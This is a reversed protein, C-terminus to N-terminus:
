LLRGVRLQVFDQGPNPERIGGNSYHEFRLTWEWSGGAPRFGVGIHESFNFVTSFDEFGHRFVPTIANFGLAAEVFWRPWRANTYRLMPAIGFQTSVAEGERSGHTKWHGLALEVYGSLLGGALPLPREPWRWRLGAALADAGRGGGAQVFVQEPVFPSRSPERQAASAVDDAPLPLKDALQATVSPAATALLLTSAVVSLRM